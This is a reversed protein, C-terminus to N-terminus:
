NFAKNVWNNQELDRLNIKDHYYSTQEWNKVYTYNNLTSCELPLVRGAINCWGKYYERKLHKTVWSHHYHNVDGKRIHGKLSAWQQQKYVGNDLKQANKSIGKITEKDAFIYDKCGHLVLRVAEKEIKIQGLENGILAAEINKKGEEDVTLSDTDMYYCNEIGASEILKWMHCRAYSTVFSSVAPFADSAWDKVTSKMKSGGFTIINHWTADDMDYYEESSVEDPHAEDIVEYKSIKQAFKGYLSNLFLKCLTQYIDNDQAKYKLRKKYWFDVYKEFLKAGNYCNVEYVELIEGQSKLLELEPHCLTTIFEGTPFFVKGKMRTIISPTFTRAKVKAIVLYDGMLEDLKKLTCHTRRGVFKYPYINDKMVHPYMSNVDYSYYTSEQFEGLKFCETRGGYYSQAELRLAEENDHILIPQKYFKHKYANFAQSPATVGFNGLNHQQCFKFFQLMFERIIEVDRFCYELCKEWLPHSTDAKAHMLNVKDFTVKAFPVDLVDFDLKELGVAEGMKALNASFWNGTNLMIIKRKDAKFQIMTAKGNQFYGSIKFGQENLFGIGGSAIVDYQINHAFMYLKTKDRTKSVVWQWFERMTTFHNSELTDKERNSRIELYNACMLYPYHEINVKHDVTLSEVDFFIMNHPFAQGYNQKMTHCIRKNM